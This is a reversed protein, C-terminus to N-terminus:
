DELLSITVNDNEIRSLLELGGQEFADDIAELKVSADSAKYNLYDVIRIGRIYRPEVAERFRMGGGDDQYSYALYNVQLSDQDIWYYFEDQHDEGGGNADFWVKIKFHDRGKIRKTGILEKHVAIDNLGYPLSFFYAVSNVSAQYKGAMSDPVSIMSDNLFRKFGYNELVDRLVSDPTLYTTRTYEFLGGSRLISYSHDRFDFQIHSLEYRAGGAREITEDIIEQATQPKTSCSVFLVLASLFAFSIRMPAFSFGITSIFLRSKLRLRGIYKHIRISQPNQWKSCNVQM